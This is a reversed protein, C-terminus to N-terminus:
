SFGEELSNCRINARQVVKFRSPMATKAAAMEIYLIRITSRAAVTKAVITGAM